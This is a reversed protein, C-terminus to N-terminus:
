NLENQKLIWFADLKMVILYSWGASKRMGFECIDSFWKGLRSVRFNLHRIISIACDYWRVMYIVIIFRFQEHKWLLCIIMGVASHRTWVLECIHGYRISLFFSLFIFYFCTFFLLTSTCGYYYCSRHGLTWAFGIHRLHETSAMNM